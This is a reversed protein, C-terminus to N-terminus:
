KRFITYKVKRLGSLEIKRKKKKEQKKVSLLQFSYDAAIPLTFLILISIGLMVWCDQAVNGANNTGGSWDDVSLKIGGFWPIEGRAKGIIWELKVIGVKRGLEDEIGASSDQDCGNNADGKTLFGSHNVNPNYNHLNLEVITIASLHYYDLEPVDYFTENDTINVEVWCMARHIVPTGGVGNKVYVIVDGYDSYTKYGTKEGQYYTIVDNRGNVKKVFTFDGPDIAGIKGYSSDDHMMSGSEIVVMPPWVGTYAFMAAVIILIVIVATLVDKVVPLVKKLM